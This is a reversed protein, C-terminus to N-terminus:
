EPTQARQTAPHRRPAKVAGATTLPRPAPATRGGETAWLVAEIEALVGFLAAQDLEQLRKARAEPRLRMLEGLRPPVAGSERGPFGQDLSREIQCRLLLDPRQALANARTAVWPLRLAETRRPDPHLDRGPPQRHPSSLTCLGDPLLDLESVGRLVEPCGDAALTVLAGLRRRRMLTWGASAAWSRAALVQRRRDPGTHEALPHWREGAQFARGQRGGEPRSPSLRAREFASIGPALGVWGWGEDLVSTAAHRLQDMVLEDLIRASLAVPAEGFLDNQVEGGAQIYATLDVARMRPDSASVPQGALWRRVSSPGPDSAAEIASWARVQQELDDITALAHAASKPLRGAELQSRLEPHLFRPMLRGAAEEKSRGLGAAIEALSYGRELAQECAGVFVDYDPSPEGEVQHGSRQIVPLSSSPPQRRKSPM